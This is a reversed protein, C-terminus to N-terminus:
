GRGRAGSRSGPRAGQGGPSSSRGGGMPRDPTGGRDKRGGEGGRTPGGGREPTARGSGGGRGPTTGRAGPTSRGGSGRGQGERGEEYEEDYDERPGRSKDRGPTSPRLGVRAGRQEERSGDRGTSSGQRMQRAMEEDRKSRARDVASGADDQDYGRQEYSRSDGGGPRRQFGGMSRNFAMNRSPNELGLQDLESLRSELVRNRSVLDRVRPDSEGDPGQNFSPTCGPGVFGEPQGDLGMDNGNQEAIERQIKEHRAAEARKKRAADSKTSDKKDMAIDWEDGTVRVGNPAVALPGRIKTPHEVIAIYEGKATPKSPKPDAWATKEHHQVPGEWESTVAMVSRKESSVAPIGSAKRGVTERTPQMEVGGEGPCTVMAM